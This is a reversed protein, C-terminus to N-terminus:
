QSAVFIGLPLLVTIAASGIMLPDKWFSVSTSAKALKKASPMRRPAMKVAKKEGISEEALSRYVTMLLPTECDQLVGMAEDFTYSTVDAEAISAIVDGERVGAVFAASNEICELCYVGKAENEVNESLLIGLPKDLVTVDISRMTTTEQTSLADDSLSLVSFHSRPMGKSVSFAGAHGFLAFLYCCTKFLISKTRNSM